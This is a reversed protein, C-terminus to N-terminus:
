RKDSSRLAQLDNANACFDLAPEDGADSDDLVQDCHAKADCAGCKQMHSKVNIAKQRHLYRSEDIGLYRLMRSLRLQSLDEALKRRFWHGTKLNCGIAMPLRIAVYLTALVLPVAIILGILDM